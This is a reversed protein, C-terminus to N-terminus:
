KKLKIKGVVFLILLIIAAPFFFLVCIILVIAWISPELKIWYDNKDNM